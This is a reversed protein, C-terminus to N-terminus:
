RSPPITLAQGNKLFRFDVGPNAELLAGMRVGFRLSLNALTEGPGILHTRNPVPQPTPVVPEQGLLQATAKKQQEEITKLEASKQGATLSADGRIRDQELAVAQKIELLAQGIEPPVGKPLTADVAVETGNTQGAQYVAYRDAGLTNKLAAVRQQELAERKKVSVPDDGGADLALERDIADTARFLARFEEATPSITKLEQRMRIANSSHRLLFEELQAPSLIEALETRTKERLKAMEAANPTQGSATLQELYSQQRDRSRASIAQVTKKTEAPLASLVPGALSVDTPDFGTPDDNWKTGLLETLLAVRQKELEDARSILARQFELSPEARWWERDQATADGQRKKSFLGNVDAVIIDRITEEPCGIARLNTIYAVYNASELEQWTFNLPRVLINTKVIRITSNSTVVMRDVPRVVRPIEHPSRLWVVAAIFLAANIVLSVALFIRARM